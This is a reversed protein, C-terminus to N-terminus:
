PGCPGDGGYAKLLAELYATDSRAALFGSADFDLLSGDAHRREILRVADAIAAPQDPDYAVGVGSESVIERMGGRDAALISAGLALAELLSLPANEPSVSPLLVVHAEAIIRRAAAPEVLGTFTVKEDFGRQRCISECAARQGGDGVITMRGAFDAPVASLFEVMGKEPELRGAFVWHLPGQRPAIAEAPPAPNPVFVTPLGLGALAGELFRSPCIVLDLRRRRDRVRYNWLHQAVKLMSYGAGRHDWRRALLSGISGLSRPDVPVLAGGRYACLGASPCLLHYDHATMVVRAGSGAAADLVAPSLEHYFNHLHVVDPGIDAVHRALARRCRGSAVYGLPTRRHGPVDESTFRSATVGAGELLRVTTDILVECGGASRYDNVHLVRV